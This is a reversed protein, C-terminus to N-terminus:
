DDKYKLIKNEIAFILDEEDLNHLSAVLEADQCLDSFFNAFAQGAIYLAANLNAERPQMTLNLEENIRSFAYIHDVIASTANYAARSLASIIRKDQLFANIIYNGM